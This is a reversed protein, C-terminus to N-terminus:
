MMGWHFVFIMIPDLIVNIVAGILTSIMAFQPSGDARIISNMGNSFMFFPIGIMIYVFYERAYAFNNETAGFA